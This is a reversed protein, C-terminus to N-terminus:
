CVHSKFVSFVNPILAQKGSQSLRGPPQPKNARLPDNNNQAGPLCFWNLNLLRRLSIVFLRPQSAGFVFLKLHM